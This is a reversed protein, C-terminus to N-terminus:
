CKLSCSDTSLVFLEFNTIVIEYNIRSGRKDFNTVNFVMSKCAVDDVIYVNCVEFDIHDRIPWRSEAM